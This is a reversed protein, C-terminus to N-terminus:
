KTLKRVASDIGESQNDLTHGLGRWAKREAEVTTKGIEADIKKKYESIKREATAAKKKLDALAKDTPKQNAKKARAVENAVDSFQDLLKGLDENFIKTNVVKSVQAKDKAWLIRYHSQGGVKHKLWDETTLDWTPM